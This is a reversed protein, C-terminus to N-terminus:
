FAVIPTVKIYNDATWVQNDGHMFIQKSTKLQQM